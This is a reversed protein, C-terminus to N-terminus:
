RVTPSLLDITLALLSDVKRAESPFKCPRTVTCPCVIVTMGAALGARCGALSDELVVCSVPPVDLLRAAELYLDPAPKGAPVEEATVLTDFRDLIGLRALERELSPRPKGTAIATRWGAERAADALERVGPLLPLHGLRAEIREVVISNLLSLDVDPGLSEHVLVEWLRNNEPPSVGFLDGLMSVEPSVGRERLVELLVEAVVSESDVILGDYDFILARRM